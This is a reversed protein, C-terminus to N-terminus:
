VRATDRRLGEIALTLLVLAIVVLVYDTSDIANLGSQLISAAVFVLELVVLVLVAKWLSRANGEL